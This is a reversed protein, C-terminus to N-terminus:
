EKIMKEVEDETLHHENTVLFRSSLFNGFTNIEEIINRFLVQLDIHLPLLCVFRVFNSSFVIEELESDQKSFQYKIEKKISQKQFEEFENDKDLIFAVAYRLKYKKGGLGSSIFVRSEELLNTEILMQLEQYAMMAWNKLRAKPNELYKEIVRYAEISESSALRIIAKKLFEDLVDKKYLEKEEDKISITNNEERFKASQEFYELQTNIDVQAEIIHFKEPHKKALDLLDRMTVENNKETM